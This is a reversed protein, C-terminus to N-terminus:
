NSGDAPDSFDRVIKPVPASLEELIDSVVLSCPRVKEVFFCGRGSRPRRVVLAERKCESM